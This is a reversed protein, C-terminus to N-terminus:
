DIASRAISFHNGLDIVVDALRCGTVDIKDTLTVKQQPDLFSAGKYIPVANTITTAPAQNMDFTGGYLSLTAITGGATYYVTGAYLNITTIVGDLNYHLGGYLNLTSAPDTSSNYVTGNDQNITVFTAGAGIYTKGSSVNINTFIGTQGPQAAVGIFATGTPRINLDTVTITDVSINLPNIGDTRSSGARRVNITDMNATALEIYTVGTGGLVLAKPAANGITLILPSIVGGTNSGITITCGDEVTFSNLSEALTGGDINVTASVPVVLDDGIAVAGSWNTDDTVDGDTSGDWYRTAM